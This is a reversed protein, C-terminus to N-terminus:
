SPLQHLYPSCHAQRGAPGSSLCNSSPLWPSNPLPGYLVKLFSHTGKKSPVYEPFGRSTIYEPHPIRFLNCAGRRQRLRFFNKGQGGALKGSVQSAGGTYLLVFRSASSVHRFQASYYQSLPREVEDEEDEQNQADDVNVLVLCSSPSARRGMQCLRGAPAVFRSASVSAQAVVYMLLCLKATQLGSASPKLTSIGASM